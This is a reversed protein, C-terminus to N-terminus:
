SSFEWVHRLRLAQDQAPRSRSAWCIVKVGPLIAKGDSHSM